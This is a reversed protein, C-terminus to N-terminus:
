EFDNWSHGDKTILDVSAVPGWTGAQYPKPAEKDHAWANLVSDTWKWAAEVEDRHVFLAQRGHMLLINVFHRM